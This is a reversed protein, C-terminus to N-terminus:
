LASPMSVRTIFHDIKVVRFVAKDNEYFNISYNKPWEKISVLAVKEKNLYYNKAECINTSIIFYVVCIILRM